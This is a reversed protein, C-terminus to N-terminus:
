LKSDTQSIVVQLPGQGEDTGISQHAKGDLRDGIERWAERDTEAADVVAQAIKFLGADVSGHKHALAKCIALRWLKGKTANDNGPQAGTTAM